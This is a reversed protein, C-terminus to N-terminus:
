AGSSSRRRSERKASSEFAGKEMWLNTSCPAAAQPLCGPSHNPGEAVALHMCYAAAEIRLNICTGSALVSGQCLVVGFSAESNVNGAVAGVYVFITEHSYCFVAIAGKM